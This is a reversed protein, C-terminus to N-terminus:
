IQHREGLGCCQKDSLWIVLSESWAADERGEDLHQWHALIGAANPGGSPGALWQVGRSDSLSRPRCPGLSLRTGHPQISNGHMRRKAKWYQWEGFVVENQNSQFRKGFGQYWRRCYDAMILWSIDHCAVNGWWDKRVFGRLSVSVENVNLLVHHMTICRWARRTCKWNSWRKLPKMNTSSSTVTM